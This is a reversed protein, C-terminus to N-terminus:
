RFKNKFVFKKEHSNKWLIEKTESNDVHWLTERKTPSGASYLVVQPFLCSVSEHCTSVVRRWPGPFTLLCPPNHYTEFVLQYIKGGNYYFHWPSPFLVWDCKVSTRLSRWKQPIPFQRSVQQQLYFPHSGIYWIHFYLKFFWFIQIGVRDPLATQIQNGNCCWRILANCKNRSDM